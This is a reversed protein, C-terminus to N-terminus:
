NAAFRVCARLRNKLWPHVRIFVSLFFVQVRIGRILALKPTSKLERDNAFNADFSKLKQEKMTGFDTNM